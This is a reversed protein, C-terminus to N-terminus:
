VEVYEEVTLEYDISSQLIGLQNKWANYNTKIKKFGIKEYVHQARTNLVNTDLIIKQVKLQNFLYDILMKILITGFGKEQETSECIKIGIEAVGDDIIRYNMEGIPQQNNEIMLVPNKDTSRHIQQLIEEVSTGLGNPFGAHEMVKGDNWWKCLVTADQDNARRIVLNGKKLYM